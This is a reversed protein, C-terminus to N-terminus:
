IGSLALNKGEKVAVKQKTKLLNFRTCHRKPNALEQDRQRWGGVQKRREETDAKGGFRLWLATKSRKEVEVEVSLWNRGGLRGERELKAAGSSGCGKGVGV